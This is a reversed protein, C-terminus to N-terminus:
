SLGSWSRPSRREKSIDALSLLRLSTLICRGGGKGYFVDTDGGEIGIISLRGTNGWAGSM